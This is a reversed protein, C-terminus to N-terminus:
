NQLLMSVLLPTKLTGFHLRSCFKLKFQALEMILTFDAEFYLSYNWDVESLSM